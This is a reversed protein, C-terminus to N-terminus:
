KKILILMKIVFAFFIFLAAYPQPSIVFLLVGLASLVASIKASYNKWFAKQCNQLSLALIGFLVTICTFAIYLAKIYPSIASLSLLSVESILGNAKDGFFPVFFFLCASLDLFGFMLSRNQTRDKEAISLAEECILLNDISVSFFKAIDKLSDISPYGRGSEWKSVATRSVHLARALEEQTLGKQKRLEQLKTNFEM